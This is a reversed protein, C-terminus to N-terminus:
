QEISVMGAGTRGGTRNILDWLLDLRMRLRLDFSDIRAISKYIRDFYHEVFNRRLSSDDFYVLSRGSVSPGAYDHVLRNQLDISEEYTELAEPWYEEGLEAYANVLGRFRAPNISYADAKASPWPFNMKRFEEKARDYLQHLQRKQEPSGADVGWTARLVIYPRLPQPAEDIVRNAGDYDNRARLEKFLDVTVNIRENNYLWFTKRSDDDIMDLIEIAQRYNRAQRAIQAATHLSWNRWAPTEIAAQLLSEITRPKDPVFYVPKRQRCLAITNEIWGSKEPLLAQFDKLYLRGYTASIACDAQEQGTGLGAAEQQILDAIMGLLDKKQQTSLPSSERKTGPWFYDATIGLLFPRNNHNRVTELWASFYRDSLTPDKDKFKALMDTVDSNVSNTLDRLAVLAFELALNPDRPLLLVALSLATSHYGTVGHEKVDDFLLSGIRGLLKNGLAEDRELVETNFLIATLVEVKVKNSEYSTEPDLALEIGKRIWIRGENADRDWLRDGLEAYRPAQQSRPLRRIDKLVDVLILDQRARWIDVPPSKEIQVPTSKQASASFSFLMVLAIVLLFHAIKM